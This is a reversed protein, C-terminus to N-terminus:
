DFDPSVDFLEAGSWLSTPPANAARVARSSVDAPLRSLIRPFALCCADTVVAMQALQRYFIYHGAPVACAVGLVRAQWDESMALLAAGALSVEDYVGFSGGRLVRALMARHRGITKDTGPRRRDLLSCPGCHFTLWLMVNSGLRLLDGSRLDMTSFDIRLNERM